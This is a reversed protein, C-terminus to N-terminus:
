SRRRARVVLVVAAIVAAAGLVLLPLAFGPLAGGASAPEDADSAPGEPAASAAPTASPAPSASPAPTASPAPSATPAPTATPKVPAPTAAPTAAPAPTATPAPAPHSGPAATPAPQEKVTLQVQQEVATYRRADAPTFVVAFSGGAQPRADPEKWAFTGPVDAKGGTLASTKLAQGKTLPAATPWATVAPAKPIPDVQELQAKGAALLAGPMGAAEIERRLAAATDDLLQRNQETYDWQTLRAYEADLESLATAKERALHAKESISDVAAPDCFFRADASLASLSQELAALEDVTGSTAESMPKNYWDEAQGMWGLASEMAQLRDLQSELLARAENAAALASASDSLQSQAVLENAASGRLAAGVDAQRDGRDAMSVPANLKGLIPAFQATWHQALEEARAACTPVASMAQAADNLAQQMLDLQDVTAAEISDHATTYASEIRAWDEDYYNAASYSGKLTNLGEQFSEKIASLPKWVPYLTVSGGDEATLDQVSQGAFYEPQEADASQAWGLFVGEANTFTSDPLTVSQGYTAPIDDMSGEGGGPAFHITYTNPRWQAYLYVATRSGNEGALNEVTAGNEFDRGGVGDSYTSWHDFTHGTRTFSSDLYWEVTDYGTRPNQEYFVEADVTFDPINPLVLTDLHNNAAVFGSDKLAPNGSMNLTTLKNYDIHLFELKKLMSCDFSTLSNDFTEIFVLELNRSVDLQTLSNHRCYLQVLKPNGALNLETLRNRECNLDVLEPCGTVDLHELANTACYLSTLRTNKSVDLSTLRNNNVNLRELATFHSIGTLDGIGLGSLDLVTIQALEGSTLVGDAGMGNLNGKDLLWGRFIQDPFNTENIDVDQGLAFAGAPLALAVLALALTVCLTKLLTRM